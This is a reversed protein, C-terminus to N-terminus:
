RCTKSGPSDELIRVVKIHGRERAIDLATKKKNEDDPENSCLEAGSQILYVALDAYGYEAAKKLPTMGMGYEENVNAGNAVLLKVIELRGKTTAMDLATGQQYYGARVNAGRELIRRAQEFDGDWAAQNLDKQLDRCRDYDPNDPHPEHLEYLIPECHNEVSDVTVKWPEGASSPPTTSSEAVSGSSNTCGSNMLSFLLIIIGTRQLLGFFFGISNKM